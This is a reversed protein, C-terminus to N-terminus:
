RNTWIIFRTAFLKVIEVGVIFMSVAFLCYWWKYPAVLEGDQFEAWGFVFLIVEGPLGKELIDMVNAIVVGIDSVTKLISQVSSLTDELAGAPLLVDLLCLVKSDQITNSLSDFAEETNSVTANDGDGNALCKAVGAGGDKIAGVLTDFDDNCPAPRRPTDILYCRMFNQAVPEIFCENQIGCGIFSGLDGILSSNWDVNRSPRSESVLNLFTSAQNATGGADIDTGGEFLFLNTVNNLDGFLTNNSGPNSSSSPSPDDPFLKYRKDGLENSTLGQIM